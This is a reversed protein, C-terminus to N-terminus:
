SVLAEEPQGTDLIEYTDRLNLRLLKRMAEEDDVVLLKAVRVEKKL